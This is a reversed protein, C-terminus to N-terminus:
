VCDYDTSKVPQAVTASYLDDRKLLEEYFDEAELYTEFSMWHDVINRGMNIYNTGHDLSWVVLFM